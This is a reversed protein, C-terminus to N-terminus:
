RMRKTQIEHNPTHVVEDLPASDEGDNIPLRDDPADAITERLSQITGKLEKTINGHEGRVVSFAEAYLTGTFIMYLAYGVLPGCRGHGAVDMSKFTAGSATQLPRDDAMKEGRQGLKTTGPPSNGTRSKRCRSERSRSKCSKTLITITVMTTTTTKVNKAFGTGTEERYRDLHHRPRM